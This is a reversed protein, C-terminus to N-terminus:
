TKPNRRKSETPALIQAKANRALVKCSAAFTAVMERRELLLPQARKGIGSRRRDFTRAVPTGDEAEVRETLAFLAEDGAIRSKQNQRSVRIRGHAAIAVGFRFNGIGNSKM